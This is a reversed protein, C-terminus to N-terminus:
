RLTVEADAAFEGYLQSADLRQLDALQAHGLWYGNERQRLTACRRGGLVISGNTSRDEAAELNREVIGVFL